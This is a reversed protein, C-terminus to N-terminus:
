EKTNLLQNSIYCIARVLAVTADLFFYIMFSFSSISCTSDSRYYKSCACSFLFFFIYTEMTLFLIPYKLEVFFLHCPTAIVACVDYELPTECKMFQQQRVHREHCQLAVVCNQCTEIVIPFFFDRVVGLLCLIHLLLNNAALLLSQLQSPVGYVMFLELALLRTSLVLVRTIM